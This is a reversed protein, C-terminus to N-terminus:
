IDGTSTAVDLPCGRVQKADGLERYNDTSMLEVSVLAHLLVLHLVVPM